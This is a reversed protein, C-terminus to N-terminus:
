RVRIARCHCQALTLHSIDPIALSTCCKSRAIDLGNERPQNVSVTNKTEDPRRFHAMMRYAIMAM